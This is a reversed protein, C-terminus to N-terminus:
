EDLTLQSHEKLYRDILKRIEKSADSNNIKTLKKFREWKAKDVTINAKTFHRSVQKGRKFINYNSMAAAFHSILMLTDKAHVRNGSCLPKDINIYRKCSRSQRRL